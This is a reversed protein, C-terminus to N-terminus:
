RDFRIRVRSYADHYVGEQSEGRLVLNTAQIHLLQDLIQLYM